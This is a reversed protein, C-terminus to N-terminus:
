PILLLCRVPSLGSAVEDWTAAEDHSAFVRGDSTGFAAVGRDPAADLSASDINDDFWEPLGDRCPEFGSGGTAPGRYVASRSGRPGDSVSLLVTDGCLAVGRAYTAHLGDTRYAWTAGDDESAALGRACAAYIRGDRALVRHVDADIDITPEWTAGEDRSRVVGGVHVNAYVAGVDETLSRVDPPGGWPTYWTDRGRVADFSGVPDTGDDTVRLLHADSTGVLYGARTDAICNARVAEATARRQWAAAGAGRWIESGDVIAWADPYEAALATVRRGEFGIPASPAGGGEELEFLGDDTGVLIRV